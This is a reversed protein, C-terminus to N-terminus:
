LVPSFGLKVFLNETESYLLDRLKDDLCRKNYPVIQDQKEVFFGNFRSVDVSEALHISTEAGEEITQYKKRVIPAMMKMFFTDGTWINSAVEGPHVAIVDIGALSDALSRTWLVLALKSASYAPFGHPANLSYFNKFRIKGFLAARSSVNIIRARGSEKLLPLLGQTLLVPAFYNVGLTMELSQATQRYSDCFLGANNILVDVISYHSKIERCVSQVSDLDSFDANFNTISGETKVDQEFKKKVEEARDINRNVTILEHGNRFLERLTAYGIGNTTGSIIIRM